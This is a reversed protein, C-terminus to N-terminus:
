KASGTKITWPRLTVDRDPESVATPVSQAATGGKREIRYNGVDVAPAGMALLTLEFVGWIFAAAGSIEKWHMLCWWISSSARSARACIRAWRSREPEPPAPL